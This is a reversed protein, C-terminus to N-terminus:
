KGLIIKQEEESLEKKDEAAPRNPNARYDAYNEFQRFHGMDKMAKWLKVLPHNETLIARGFPLGQVTRKENKQPSPMKPM